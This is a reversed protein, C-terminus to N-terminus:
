KLQFTKRAWTQSEKIIRQITTKSSGLIDAIAQLFFVMPDKDCLYKAKIKLLEQSWISWIKKQVYERIEQDTRKKNIEVSGKHHTRDM